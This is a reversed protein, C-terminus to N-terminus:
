FREHTKTGFSFINVVNCKRPVETDPSKEALVGALYQTINAEVPLAGKLREILLDAKAPDDIM